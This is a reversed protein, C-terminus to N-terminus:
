LAYNQIARISNRASLKSRDSFLVNVYEKNYDPDNDYIEYEHDFIPDRFDDEEPKTKM